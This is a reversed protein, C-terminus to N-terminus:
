QSVASEWPYFGYVLKYMFLVDVILLAIIIVGITHETKLLCGM